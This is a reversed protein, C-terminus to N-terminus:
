LHNPLKIIFTTGKGQITNVKLEGGNSKTIIDYSMSLGLGTGKGTPKTTFFPEFIRNLIHEPIGNGNDTIRIEITTNVKKTSVTVTPKYNEIGSKKKEDVVYFANTILNLIVRGIDQAVIEITGISDDFDTKIDANFSKDKARLGHYALRLYEDALANINTPEKEGNSNQSHQLMGKVISDARKGHHTIKELNQKIDVSIAKAEEIDGQDLEDNMEDILENSVESFNNVFNLPNQIEHAIGATLEGLSAMKESQILQSQTSKLNEISKTLQNTRHSVKEELLKNERKLAASRYAIFSSIAIIFLISYLVYAWWTKWWPPSIVITISPNETSWVGDSNAAKVRFTYAGPSLNTYTFNRDTGAQVWENDYGDLKFAYTNVAPNDYQLGVYNFRVRNQEYTLQIGNKGYTLMPELADTEAEPNIVGISEIQVKPPFPNADLAAPYFVVIGNSLTTMFTGDELKFFERYSANFTNGTLITSLPFNKVSLDKPNVKSFGRDTKIWLYGSADEQISKVTNFLLGSGENLQRTWKGNKRDFEFLGGQYTGVWLRGSTDEYISTICSMAPDNTDTYTIFNDNLSNYLNLSGHNTGVWFNHQQDVYTTLVRDDDLAGTNEPTSKEQNDRYPYHKFKKTKPDFSFIGKDTSAELWITGNEDETPQNLHGNEVKNETSYTEKRGTKLEYFVLNKNTAIYLNGAKTVHGKGSYREGENATFTKIFTDSNPQWKYITNENSFWLYGKTGSAPTCGEKPYSNDQKPDHKYINFSSKKANSKNAGAWSFGVWLTNTHDVMKVRLDENKFVSGPREADPVYSEFQTTKSNFYVLGDNSSLWLNGEKTEKIDYLWKQFAARNTDFGTKFYDMTETKRNFRVMGDYGAFWLQKSKDEYIGNQNFSNIGILTNQDISPVTLREPKPQFKTIRETKTDFRLMKNEKIDIMWLIDKESPAEYIFGVDLTQNSDKSTAYGKLPTDTGQYSYFGNSTGFWVTGSQSTFASYIHSADVHNANKFQKGFFEFDGKPDLKWLYFEQYDNTATGWLNGAKDQTYITYSISLEKEPYIFQTFTDTARNYKFLGNSGTSVWVTNNNDLFISRVSTIPDLNTEKTGLQYIKYDYGDYRVLGNQTGMWIYGLDDEVMAIVSSEPLGTIVDHKEFYVQNQQAQVTSLFGLILFLYYNLFSKM